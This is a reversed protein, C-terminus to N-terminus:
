QVTQLLQAFMSQIAAIVRANASYAHQLGLMLSMETDMNVGSVSAVKGNLTSLMAQESNLRDTTMGSQQSQSSVLQNAFDSLSDGSANFSANLRGDAGLGTTNMAPQASGPSSQTGFTYNIVNTILATFGAPGGPPNPTFGGPTANTGDRVLSPNVLVTPNVQITSAYGVYGTQVPPGGGSPINGTPDTFLKLGQGAFRTSLTQAFEDLEAQGTPMTTDRLTIDAGIRGGTMQTTVDTGNLSIGFIGGGPYFSGPATSGGLLTFQHDGGRTPLMLGGSTFIALDGSPQEVPKIDMLNSLSQVAANRQNELDAVGQGTPKLGIIRDSLRGITQLTSSMTAVASGLDNQASQRQAMYAASLTNIGNALTAAASVVSSQQARNSPDTLLASFGAQMNGLLSGLDTGAGPTGLLIDITQLAAQNTQLGTVTANQQTVATQLARDIQLATPATRVGMGVGDATIAQQNGIEVAYGPTAANAVNHSITAFQANINALGSSAISLASDLGM